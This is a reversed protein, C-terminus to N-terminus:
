IRQTGHVRALSSTRPNHQAVILREQLVVSGDLGVALWANQQKVNWWLRRIEVRHLLEPTPDPLPQMFHVVLHQRHTPVHGWIKVARHSFIHGDWVKHQHLATSHLLTAKQM